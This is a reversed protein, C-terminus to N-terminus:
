PEGMWERVLTVATEADKAWGHVGLKRWLDPFLNFAIGGVMVKTEQLDKERGLYAVIEKVQVLNFPMTVSVGLVKPRVKKLLRFLEAQPTNAGLYCVEWGEAELFDAVMRCGVEHFENPAATLVIKRKGKAKRPIRTYFHAMV